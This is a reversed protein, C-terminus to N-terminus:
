RYLTVQGTYEKLYGHTTTLNIKYIYVDQKAPESKYTGDWGQAQDDTDFVREGWRNFISFNYKTVGRLVPRFSENRDDANPTFANPIFCVFDSEIKVAKVVTDACGHVNQVVFAVPYIGAESFFYMANEKAPKYSKDNAFYWNWRNQEEGSSSNTFIVEEIGEVPKEPVWYFDAKPVSLGKVTFTSTNICGTKQDTFSGTIIHDGEKHFCHSFTSTNISKGDLKWTVTVPQLTALSFDSCFPVCGRMTQSNLGAGPLQKISLSTVTQNVCGNVDTVFLTYDGAYIMSSATVTVTEGSAKITNPGHWDYSVGGGGTLVVQGNLCVTASSISAKPIPLPKVAVNAVATRTCNNASGTVIYQMEVTPKALVVAGNITNLGNPPTWTYSTANGYATLTASSGICVFTSVPTVSVEPLPYVSISTTLLASQCGLSSGVVSFVSNISPNGVAVGGNSYSTYNPTTATWTYSSAGDSTYTFTEGACIVLTPNIISVTPNPIVSFSVTASSTCVGNSGVLSATSVVIQSTYPPVSILSWPPPSNISIHGPTTLTYATGGAAYLMITNSSGSLAQACLSPSSLSTTLSPPLVVLVNAVATNTCGQSSTAKVTYNGTSALVPNIVSPNQATSAFSGPGNWSYTAGAVSNAGLNLTQSTCVTAGTVALTPITHVVITVSTSATCSNAATVTLNYIGAQNLQVPNIVPNQQSSSFSQPGNWVYAAGGNSYLNLVAQECRPSNSGILPTPQFKLTITATAATTCTQAEGVVSYVTTTLPNDTISTANSNTSWTYNSAGSVSITGTQLPCISAHTITLVPNAIFSVAVTKTIACTNADTATLSYVYTGAVTESVIIGSAPPGNTWQHVYGPTGGSAQSSISVSQGACVSSSSATIQLTLAPPQSILFVDNIQCGTLADRVTVSWLGGSLTSATPTFYSQIGTTWTYNQTASGGLLNTFYGAATSAGNCSVSSSNVLNGTLPVLPQFVTTFTTICSGGGAVVTVSHTGPVIGSVATGTQLGPLWSFTFPGIGGVPTVTAFGLNACTVSNTVINLSPSTIVVPVIATDNKGGCTYYTILSVSYTGSGSFVHVPNTLGSVNSQGSAPDGFNWVRSAVTYGVTTCGVVTSAPAPATFSATNCSVAPNITYTFAPLPTQPLLIESIFNPLGHRSQKPALSIGHVVYNCNTGSQNPSSIIGLTTTFSNAVYIKGDPGRQLSLLSVGQVSMTTQANGACLDWQYVNSLTGQLVTSYLKSGDPSFEVGYIQNAPQQPPPNQIPLFAPNSIMGTNNDFNHLEIGNFPAVSALKKGTPSVKMCGVWPGFSSTAVASVVAVSSMGASTLLYSRFNNTNGERIIVWADIGNCHRGAALQEECAGVFLPVNKITVSGSGSALNMDIISYHLGLTLNLAANLGALTFVYYQNSGNPNKVIVAAQSATGYGNLGTGNAMVLHSSNWITEGDTYFLLNGSGDAVSACGEWVSMSSVALTTPSSTMFDIAGGYGFYWKATENQCILRLSAFQVLLIIIFSSVRPM